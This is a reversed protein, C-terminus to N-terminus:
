ESEKELARRCMKRVEREFRKYQRVFRCKLQEGFDKRDLVAPSVGSLPDHAAAHELLETVTGFGACDVRTKNNDILLRIELYYPSHGFKMHCEHARLTHFCEAPEAASEDVGEITVPTEGPFVIREGETPSITIVTM